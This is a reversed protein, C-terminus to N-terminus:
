GRGLCIRANSQAPRSEGADFGTNPGHPKTGHNQVSRARRSNVPGDAQVSLGNQPAYAPRSAFFQLGTSKGGEREKRGGSNGGAGIRATTASNTSACRQPRQGLFPTSTRTKEVAGDRLPVRFAGIPRDPRKANRRATLPTSADTAGYAGSLRPQAVAEPTVLHPLLGRGGGGDGRGGRLPSGPGVRRRARQGFDLRDAQAQV